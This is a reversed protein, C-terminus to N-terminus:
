NLLAEIEQNVFEAFRTTSVTYGEFITKDLTLTIRQKGAMTCISAVAGLLTVFIGPLRNHAHAHFKLTEEM